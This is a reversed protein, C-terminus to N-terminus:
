CCAGPQGLAERVLQALLEALALHRRVVARERLFPAQLDLLAQAGALQGHQDRGGRELEADVDAGDLQHALEARRAADGGEELADAAGAVRAVGRRLSAQERGAAVLQDLARREQAGHAGSAEVAHQRRYCGEVDQRLLDHRGACGLRPAFVLQQRQQPARRRVRLERVGVVLVHQRQEGLADAGSAALAGGPDVAVLHVAHQARAAARPQRRERRAARNGVGGVVAHQRLGVVGQDAGHVLVPGDLAHGAVDEQQAGVGPLDPADLRAHDAHAVGLALRRVDREPQALRRRARLLERGLDRVQAALELVAARASFQLRRRLPQDVLGAEVGAAGLLQHAIQRRRALRQTVQRRALADHQLAEEVVGAAHLQHDVRGEAPAHVAREAQRHALADAPAEIELQLRRGAVVGDHRESPGCCAASRSIKLFISEVGAPARSASACAASSEGMHFARQRQFRPRASATSRMRPPLFVGGASWRMSASSRIAATNGASAWHWSFAPPGISSGSWGSTRWVSCSQRCSAISTSASSVSIRSIPAPVIATCTQSVTSGEGSEWSIRM